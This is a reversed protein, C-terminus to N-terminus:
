LFSEIDGKIVKPYNEILDILSQLAVKGEEEDKQIINVSKSILKPVIQAYKM